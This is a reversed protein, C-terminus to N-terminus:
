SSISEMFEGLAEPSKAVEPDVLLYEVDSMLYKKSRVPYLVQRANYMPIVIKLNNARLETIVQDLRAENDPQIEIFDSIPILVSDRAQILSYVDKTEKSFSPRPGSVRHAQSAKPVNKELPAPQKRSFLSIVASVINILISGSKPSDGKKLLPDNKDSMLKKNFADYERLLQNMTKLRESTGIIKLPNEEAAISGAAEALIEAVFIKEDKQSETLSEFLHSDTLHKVVETFKELFKSSDIIYKLGDSSTLSIIKGAAKKDSEWQSFNEADMGEFLSLINSETTIINEAIHKMIEADNLLLPDLIKDVKIICDRLSQFNRVALLDKKDLAIAMEGTLTNLIYNFKTDRYDSVNSNLIGFNKLRRTIAANNADIIKRMTEIDIKLKVHEYNKKHFCFDETIDYGNKDYSYNKFTFINTGLQSKIIYSLHTKNKAKRILKTLNFLRFGALLQLLSETSRSDRSAVLENYDKEPILFTFEAKEEIILNKNEPNVSFAYSYVPKVEDPNYKVLLDLLYQINLLRKQTIPIKINRSENLSEATALDMGPSKKWPKQYTEIETLIEDLYPEKLLRDHLFPYKDSRNYHM